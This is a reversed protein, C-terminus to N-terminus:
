VIPRQYGPRQHVPQTQFIQHIPRHAQTAPLTSRVRTRLHARHYSRHQHAAGMNVM